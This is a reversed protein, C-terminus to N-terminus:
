CGTPWCAVADHEHSETSYEWDLRLEGDEVAASIDLLHSRIRDPALDQGIADLRARFLGDDEAASEYQGFYNFCVRPLAGSLGSDPRLYRLAEYSLGRRPIGRLTEKVSKLAAGWDGAPVELAVPFQSTFWGVTRTLDVGDVIEERGHGELTIMARGDRDGLVRGLAALLVDNVQTRYVDPVEHLLADTDARGFRVSVTAASGVSTTTPEDSRSRRGTPCTPM